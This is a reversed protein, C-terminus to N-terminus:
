CVCRRFGDNISSPRRNQMAVADHNFWSASAPSLKSLIVEKLSTSIGRGVSTQENHKTNHELFIWVRGLSPKKTQVGQGRQFNWNNILEMSEKIFNQSKLAWMGKSNGIVKWQTPIFIKQFGVNDSSFLVAVTAQHIVVLQDFLNFNYKSTLLFDVSKIKINKKYM